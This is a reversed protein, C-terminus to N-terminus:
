MKVTHLPLSMLERLGVVLNSLYKQHRSVSVGDVRGDGSSRCPTLTSTLRLFTLYYALM